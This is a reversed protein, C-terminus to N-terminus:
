MQHLLVYMDSCTAIVENEVLVPIVDVISRRRRRHTGNSMHGCELWLLIYVYTYYQIYAVITLNKVVRFWIHRLSFGVVSHTWFKVVRLTQLENYTAFSAANKMSVRISRDMTSALIKIEVWIYMCVIYTIYLRKKMLDYLPPKKNQQRGNMSLTQIMLIERCAPGM